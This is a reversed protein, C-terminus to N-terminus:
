LPALAGRCPQLKQAEGSPPFLISDTIDKLAFHYVM